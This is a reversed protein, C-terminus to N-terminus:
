ECFPNRFMLSTPKGDTKIDPFGVHLYKEGRPFSEIEPVCGESDPEGLRAAVKGNGDTLIANFPKPLPIKKDASAYLIKLRLPDNPAPNENLVIVRLIAGSDTEAISATELSNKFSTFFAIGVAVIILIWLLIKGSVSKM